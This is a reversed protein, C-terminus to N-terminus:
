KWYLQDSWQMVFSPNSVDFGKVWGPTVVNGLKNKAILLTPVQGVTGLKYLGTVYFDFVKRGTELYEKSGVEM